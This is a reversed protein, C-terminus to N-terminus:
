ESECIAYQVQGWKSATSSPGKKNGFGIQATVAALSFPFNSANLPAAIRQIPKSGDVTEVELIVEQGILMLRVIHHPDGGNTRWDVTIEAPQGGATQAAENTGKGCIRFVNEESTAGAIMRMEISRKLGDVTPNFWLRAGAEVGPAPEVAGLRAELILDQNDIELDTRSYYFGGTMRPASFAGSASQIWPAQAPLPVATKPCNDDEDTDDEINDTNSSDKINGECSITIFVIPVFLLLAFVRGRM